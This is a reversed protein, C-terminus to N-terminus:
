HNKTVYGRLRAVEEKIYTIGARALDHECSTGDEAHHTCGCNARGFVQVKKGTEDTYHDLGLLDNYKLEAKQCAENIDEGVVNKEEGAISLRFQM